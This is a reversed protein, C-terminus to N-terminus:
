VTQYRLRYYVSVNDIAIIDGDVHKTNIVKIITVKLTLNLCNYCRFYNVILWIIWIILNNQYTYFLLQSM